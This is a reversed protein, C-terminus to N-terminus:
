NLESRKKVLQRVLANQFHRISRRRTERIVGLIMVRVYRETQQHYGHL